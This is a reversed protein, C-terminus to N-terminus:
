DSAAALPPEKAPMEIVANQRPASSRLVLAKGLYSDLLHKASALRAANEATDALGPVHLLVAPETKEIRFGACQEVGCKRLGRALRLVGALACVESQLDEPLRTFGKGKPKPEQGRHYRITWALLQWEHQTWSPPVPRALLFERAAKQPLAADSSKVRLGCLRAASRLVRRAHPQDFAPAIRGRHMVDFLAVALRSIQAARAPRRDAARATVRLRAAAALELRERQPLSRQWEQWVSNKGTTLERYEQLCAGRQREMTREWEAQLDSAEAAKQKLLVRLVDLDHVQGLLDQLQKLKPSWAEYQQPLLSEVTYRFKKLGIRLAHWSNPKNARVAKSHLERAENFRELALCQAALSGTPVLRVRKSLKRDLRNWAKGDFKEALRLADQLLAPETQQFYDHLIIRLRDNEAGHESVWEDMIQTDRLEGLKRFLKKPVKRLVHWAPDPDVERMVAAVSRCRRLAVRLDHVADKDPASQLKELEM